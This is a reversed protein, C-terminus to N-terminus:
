TIKVCQIDAEVADFSGASPVTDLSGWLEIVDNTNATTYILQPMPVIGATYTLTTIIQTKLATTGNTLDAATNNTRRFKLTATRVAAFTAANYDLRIRGSILYTGAQTLTIAPDTTGFNLLAPTNTLQYATGAAYISYTTSTFITSNKWVNNLFDYYYLISNYIKFQGYINSPVGTPLDTVTEIFGFIDFLNIRQSYNGDHLHERIKQEIFAQAEPNM